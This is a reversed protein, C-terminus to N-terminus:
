TVVYGRIGVLGMIRWFHETRQWQENGMAHLRGEKVIEVDVM